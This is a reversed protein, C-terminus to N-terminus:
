SYIGGTTSPGVMSVGSESIRARDIPLDEESLPKSEEIRRFTQRDLVLELTRLTVEDGGYLKRESRRPVVVYGTAIFGENLSLSISL